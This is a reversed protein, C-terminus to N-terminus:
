VICGLQECSGSYGNAWNRQCCKVSSVSKFTGCEDVYTQLYAVKKIDPFFEGMDDPYQYNSYIYTVFNNFFFVLVKKQRKKFCSGSFHVM